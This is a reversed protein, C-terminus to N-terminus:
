NEILELVDKLESIVFDGKANMGAVVCGASKGAKYDNKTSAILISEQPEVKLNECLKIVLDPYPKLKEADDGTVVSDFYSKFESVNLIKAMENRLKNTVLGIKIGNARVKQLVEKANAYDEKLEKVEFSNVIFNDLDFLIAKLEAQKKPLVMENYRSQGYFVWYLALIGTAVIVAGLFISM